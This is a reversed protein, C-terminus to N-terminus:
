LRKKMRKPYKIWCAITAVTGIIVGGVVRNKILLSFFTHTSCNEDHKECLRGLNIVRWSYFTEWRVWTDTFGTCHKM